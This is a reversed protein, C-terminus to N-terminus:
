GLYVWDDERDPRANEARRQPAGRAKRLNRGSAVISSLRPLVPRPRPLRDEQDQIQDRRRDAVPLRYPGFERIRAPRRPQRPQRGSGSAKGKAEPLAAQLMDKGM